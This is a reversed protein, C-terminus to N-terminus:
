WDFYMEREEKNLVHRYKSLFLQNAKNEYHLIEWHKRNYTRQWMGKPKPAIWHATGPEGGLAMRISNARRLARDAKDESQSRYSLDYCHRCLFYRGGAFLKCVRRGCHVGNVVGPCRFYPRQNGYNCAVHTLPVTQVIQEWDGGNLRVSFDLIVSTESAHFAIRAVETGNRSWRWNGRWGPQLCGDRRMKNIDLSRSEDAKQKRRPRGSGYGGM